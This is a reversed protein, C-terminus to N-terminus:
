NFAMYTYMYLYTGLRSISVHRLGKFMRLSCPATPSPAELPRNSVSTKKAAASDLMGHGTQITAQIFELVM